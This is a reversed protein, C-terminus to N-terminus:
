INTLSISEVVLYIPAINTSPNKSLDRSAYRHLNAPINSSLKRFKINVTQFIGLYHCILRISNGLLMKVIQM